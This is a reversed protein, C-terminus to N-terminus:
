RQVYIVQNMLALHLTRPNFVLLVPVRFLNEMRHACECVVDVVPTTTVDDQAHFLLVAHGHQRGISYALLRDIGYVLFQQVDAIQYLPSINRNDGMFHVFSRVDKNQPARRAGHTRVLTGNHDGLVGLALLRIVDALGVGCDLGICRLLPFQRTHLSLAM